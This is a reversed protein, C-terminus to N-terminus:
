MIYPNLISLNSKTQTEVISLGTGKKVKKEGLLCIWKKYLMMSSLQLWIAFILMGKEEGKVSYFLSGFRPNSDFDRAWQSITDSLPQRQSWVSFYPFTFATDTQLSGHKLLTWPMTQDGVSVFCFHSGLSWTDLSLHKCKLEHRCGSRGFIETVALGFKTELPEELRILHSTIFEIRGCLKGFM